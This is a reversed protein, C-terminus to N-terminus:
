WEYFGKTTIICRWRKFASRFAPESAVTEARANVM